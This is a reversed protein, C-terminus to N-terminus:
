GFPFDRGVREIGGHRIHKQLREDFVRNPVADSGFLAAATYLYAGSFDAIREFNSDPVVTQTKCGFIGFCVAADPQRVRPRSQPM